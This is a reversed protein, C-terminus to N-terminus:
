MMIERRGPSRNTWIPQNKTTFFDSPLRYTWIGVSESSLDAIKAERTKKQSWLEWRKQHKSVIFFHRLFCNHSPGLFLWFCLRKFKFSLKAPPPAFPAAWPGPRKPRRKARRRRRPRPAGAVPPGPPAPPPAQRPPRPPPPAAAPPPRRPRPHRPAGPRRAASSSVICPVASRRRPSSALTTSPPSFSSSIDPEFGVIMPMTSIVNSIVFLKKKPQIMNEQNTRQTWEWCFIHDKSQENLRKIRATSGLHHAKTRGHGGPVHAVGACGIWLAACLLWPAPYSHHPIWDGASDERGFPPDRPCTALTAEFSDPHRTWSQAETAVLKLLTRCNGM